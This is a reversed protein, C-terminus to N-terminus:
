GAVQWWHPYRRPSVLYRNVLALWGTARRRHPLLDNAPMRQLTGMTLVIALIVCNLLELSVIYVFHPPIGAAHHIIQVLMMVGVVNIILWEWTTRSFKLMVVAAIFDLAAGFASPYDGNFDWWLTSLVFTLATLGVWYRARPVRWSYVTVGAAISLAILYYSPVM